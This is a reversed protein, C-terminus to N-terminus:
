IFLQEVAPNRELAPGREPVPAWWFRNEFKVLWATRIPIGSVGIDRLVTSCVFGLPVIEGSELAKRIRFWLSGPSPDYKLAEIQKAHSKSLTKIALLSETKVM